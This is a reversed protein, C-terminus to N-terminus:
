AIIGYTKGEKKSQVIYHIERLFIATFLFFAVIWIGIASVEYIEPLTRACIWWAVCSAIVCIISIKLGDGGRLRLCRLVVTM